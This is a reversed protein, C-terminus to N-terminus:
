REESDASSPHIRFSFRPVCTWFLAAGFKYHMRKKKGVTGTSTQFFLSLKESLWRASTSATSDRLFQKKQSIDTLSEVEALPESQSQGFIFVM